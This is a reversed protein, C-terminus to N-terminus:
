SQVAFVLRFTLKGGAVVNTVTTPDAIIKAGGPKGIAHPVNDDQVGGAFFDRGAAAVNLGVAYRDADASEDGDLGTDDDGVNLVFAPSGSGAPLSEVCSLHPILAARQPALMLDLFDTAAFGDPITVVANAFGLGGMFQLMDFRNELIPDVQKAM